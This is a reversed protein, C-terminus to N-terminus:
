GRPEVADEQLWEVIRDWDYIVKRGKKIHPIEGLSTKKRITNLAYPGCGALEVASLFQKDPEAM